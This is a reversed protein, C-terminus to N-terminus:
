DEHPLLITIVLEGEDGPGAHIHLTTLEPERSKGDRPVCYLQFPKRGSGGTRAANMAMWLVDWLRGSTDQYTQRESDEKDWTVCAEYVAQTLAVPCRFGAEKATETVDVLIEDEIAQARTYVSIVEAGAFPDEFPEELAAVSEGDLTLIGSRIWGSVIAEIEQEPLSIEIAHTGIGELRKLFGHEILRQLVIDRWQPLLPLHCTDCVMAWLQENLSESRERTDAEPKFFLLAQRSTYNPMVATRDYLWLHTVEGFLNDKPMRGSLKELRELSGIQVFKQADAANVRFSNLGGDRVPLSLKALFEQMDTDRGWVSIFRLYSQDCLLSDVYLGSAETISMLHHQNQNM